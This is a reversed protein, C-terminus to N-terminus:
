VDSKEEDKASFLACLLFCNVERLGLAFATQNVSCPIKRKLELLLATFYLRTKKM